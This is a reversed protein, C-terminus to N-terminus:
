ATASPPPPPPPASPPIPPNPTSATSSPRAAGASLQNLIGSLYALGILGAVLALWTGVGTSAKVDVEYQYFGDSVASKGGQTMRLIFHAIAGLVIAAFSGMAIMKTQRDYPMNKNGMFSAIIVGLIGAATLLGFDGFGNGTKGEFGQATNSSWTLFMFILAVAAIALAILRQPHLNLNIQNQQQDM